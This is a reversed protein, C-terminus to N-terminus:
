QEMKQSVFYASSQHSNNPVAVVAPCLFLTHNDRKPQSYEESLHIYIQTPIANSTELSAKITNSWDYILIGQERPFSQGTPFLM